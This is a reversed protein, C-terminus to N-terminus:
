LPPPSMTVLCLRLLCIVPRLATQTPRVVSFSMLALFDSYLIMKILMFHISPVDNTLVSTGCLYIHLIRFQACSLVSFSQLIQEDKFYSIM